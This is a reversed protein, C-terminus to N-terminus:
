TNDEIETFAFMNPNFEAEPIFLTVDSTTGTDKITFSLKVTYYYGGPRSLEKRVTVKFDTSSHLYITLM